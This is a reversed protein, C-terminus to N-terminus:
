TKYQDHIAQLHSKSEESQLGAYSNDIVHSFLSNLLGQWSKCDYLKEEGIADTHKEEDGLFVRWKYYEQRLPKFLGTRNTECFFQLRKICAGNWADCWNKQQGIEFFGQMYYCLEASTLSDMMGAFQNQVVEEFYEEKCKDTGDQIFDLIFESFLTFNIKLSKSSWISM